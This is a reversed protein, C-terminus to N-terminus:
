NVAVSGVARLKWSLRNALRKDIERILAESVMKGATKAQAESIAGNVIVQVAGAALNLTTGGVGSSEGGTTEIPPAGVPAVNPSGGMLQAILATNKATMEAFINATSLMAGIRSGTVETITTVRNFGGTGATEARTADVGQRFLDRLQEATLGGLDAGGEDLRALVAAIIEDIREATTAPDSLEAFEDAFEGLSIGADNLGKIIARFREAANSKGMLDLGYNIRAIVDAAEDGFKGLEGLEEKLVAPIQQLAQLLGYPDEREIFSALNTGYKRDMERFYALLAGSDFDQGILRGIDRLTGRRGPGNGEGPQLVQGFQGAASAANITEVTAIDSQIAQTSVNQLYTDKLEILAAELAKMGALTEKRAAEIAPDKGFLGVAGQIAQGIGAITGFVDGAYASAVAKAIGGALQGISAITKAINSDVGALAAALIYAANAANAIDGALKATDTAISTSQAKAGKLLDNIQKRIAAEKAILDNITKQEAARATSGEPAADRRATAADILGGVKAINASLNFGQSVDREIDDLAKQLAEARATADIMPQQIAEVQAILADSAGRERMTRLLDALANQLDDVATITSGATLDRLDRGLEEQVKQVAQANAARLEEVLKRIEDSGLKARVAQRTLKDVQSEFNDEKGGTFSATASAFASRVSAQQEALRASAAEARQGAKDAKKEAATLDDIMSQLRNIQALDEQKFGGTIPDTKANAILNALQNNYAAVLNNAQQRMENTAKGTTLVKGLASATREAGEVELRNLQEQIDRADRRSNNLEDRAKAVAAQDVLRTRPAARPADPDFLVSGREAKQLAKEAASVRQQLQSQESELGERSARFQEERQKRLKEILEDVKKAANSAGLGVSDFGRRLLTFGAQIAISFVTGSAFVGILAALKGVSGITSAPVPPIATTAKGAATAAVAAGKAQNALVDWKKGLEGSKKIFDDASITGAKFADELDRYAKLQGRFSQGTLPGATGIRDLSKGTKEAQNEVQRLVSLAQAKGKEMGDAVLTAEYVLGEVLTSGM